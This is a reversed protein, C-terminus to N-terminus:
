WGRLITKFEDAEEDQILGNGLLLSTVDDAYRTEQDLM